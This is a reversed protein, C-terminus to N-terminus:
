APPHRALRRRDRGMGGALGAARVHAGVVRTAGLGEYGGPYNEAMGQVSALGNLREDSQLYTEVFDRHVVSELTKFDSTNTAKLFAEFVSRGNAEAMM